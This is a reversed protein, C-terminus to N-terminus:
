LPEKQDFLRATSARLDLPAELRDNRVTGSLMAYVRDGFGSLALRAPDGERLFQRGLPFERLGVRPLGGPIGYQLPERECLRLALSAHPPLDVPSDWQVILSTLWIAIPARVTLVAGEAAPDRELAVHWGHVLLGFAGASAFAADPTM